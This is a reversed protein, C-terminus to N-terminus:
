LTNKTNLQTIYTASVVLWLVVLIACAMKCWELMANKPVGINDDGEYAKTTTGRPVRLLACAFPLLLLLVLSGISLPLRTGADIVLLNYTVDWPVKLLYLVVMLLVVMALFYGVVISAFVLKNSTMQLKSQEGITEQSLVWWRATFCAVFVSTVLLSLVVLVPLFM